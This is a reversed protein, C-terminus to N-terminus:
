ATGVGSSNGRTWSSCPKAYRGALKGSHRRFYGRAHLGKDSKEDRIVLALASGGPRPRGLLPMSRHLITNSAGRRGSCGGESTRTSAKARMEAESCPSLRRHKYRVNMPLDKRFCGFTESGDECLTESGSYEYGALSREFPAWCDSSGPRRACTCATDAQAQLQRLQAQTPLAVKPPPAPEARVLWLAVAGAIVIVAAALAFWLRRPMARAREFPARLLSTRLM